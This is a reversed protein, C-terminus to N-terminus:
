LLQSVCTVDANKLVGNSLKSVLIGNNYDKEIREKLQKSATELMLDLFMPLMSTGEQASVIKKQYIGYRIQSFDLAVRDVQVKCPVYGQKDSSSNQPYSLTEVCEIPVIKPLDRVVSVYCIKENNNFAQTPPRHLTGPIVNVAVPEAYCNLSITYGLIESHKVSERGFLKHKTLSVRRHLEVRYTVAYRFNDTVIDPLQNPRLSDVERGFLQSASSCSELTEVTEETVNFFPLRIM